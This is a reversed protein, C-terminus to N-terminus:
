FPIIYGAAFQIAPNSGSWFAKLELNWGHQNSLLFEWGYHATVAYNEPEVLNSFEKRSVLLHAVGVGYYSRASERSPTIEWAAGVFMSNNQLLQVNASWRHWPRTRFQITSNIFFRDADDNDFFSRDAHFGGSLGLKPRLSWFGIEKFTKQPADKEVSDYPYFPRPKSKKEPQQSEVKYWHDKNKAAMASVSLQLIILLLVLRFMVKNYLCKM